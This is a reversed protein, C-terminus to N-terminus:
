DFLNLQVAEKKKEELIKVASISEDWSTILANYSLAEETWGSRDAILFLQYCLAKIQDQVQADVVSFIEAVGENGKEEMAKVTQQTLLWLSRNSMYGIATFPAIESREKLSVKGKGSEVFGASAMRDVSINKSNALNNVDGFNWIDFAKQQYMTLALSTEVDMDFNVDNLYQDLQRNIIKLADRVTLISGDNQIISNYRSYVAIGPGIASQALDVPAINSAQLNKLAPIMESKLVDLFTRLDIDEKPNTNKRCVIVISSALANAGTAVPRNSLETRMPWTGSIIFGANIISALMTEWGNSATGEDDNESQKYAYYITVPVDSRNYKYLNKCTQLMGDEFYQKAELEKGDFRAPNAILEANKPTSMTAFISPYVRKLSNRMWIYFFDSLDSYCINNYYPPDTSIMINNLGNDQTADWQIVMGPSNGKPLDLVVKKIWELMSEFSGSAGSFPNAEAYDWVMPIAQRGFVNRITDRTASWSCNASNYDAMKDVLFALYISIAEAYAKSGSGGNSISTSDERMGAKKADEEVITEITEISDSLTTLMTLQRNTFLDSFDYLGYLQPRFDRTNNPIRGNPHLTPRDLSRYDVDSCVEDASIFDRGKGDEIVYGILTNGLGRNQGQIRVEDLSFPENCCPCLAGQRSVTGKSNAKGDKIKVSCCNDQIVFEFSKERGRKNSLEMSHILPITAKCAPNPCCANKAWLYAIVNAQKKINDKYFIIKPYNKGVKDFVVQKLRNGYYEIDEALGQAGIYTTNLSKRSKPNVPSLNQFQLPFEIMAKNIMVPVPNLDSAYTKLGLRQAELPIAGGGAFPDLFAPPNNDTSKMIEAKAKALLEQNNSNEWVVLEKLISFLRERERNQLEETPFQEPHSSPDDVLSSWIVARAAALPRRAWWLHLTSPHGHRISKERACAANIEDLPLAVEILKKKTEM